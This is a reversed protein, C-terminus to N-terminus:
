VSTPWETPSITMDSSRSTQPCWKRGNSYEQGQCLVHSTTCLCAYDLFEGLAQCQTGRIWSMTVYTAFWLKDSPFTEVKLTFFSEPIIKYFHLPLRSLCSIRCVIIMRFVMPNLEWTLNVPQEGSSLTLDTWCIVIICCRHSSSGVTSGTNDRRYLGRCTKGKRVIEVEMRNDLNWQFHSLLDVSEITVTMDNAHLKRDNKIYVSLGDNGEWMPLAVSPVRLSYGSIGFCSQDAILLVANFYLRWHMVTMLWMSDLLTWQYLDISLFRSIRSRRLRLLSSSFWIASFYAVWTWKLDASM